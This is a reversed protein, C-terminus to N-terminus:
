DGRLRRMFKAIKRRVSDLREDLEKFQDPTLFKLDASTILHHLLETASSFSTQFFRLTDPTTARGCGEAINAGISVAAKRMQM